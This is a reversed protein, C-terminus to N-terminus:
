RSPKGEFRYFKESWDDLDPSQVQGLVTNPFIGAPPHPPPPLLCFLDLIDSATFSNAILPHTGLPVVWVSLTFYPSLSSLSAENTCATVTQCRLLFVHVCCLHESM